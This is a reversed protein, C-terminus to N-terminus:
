IYPTSNGPGYPIKLGAINTPMINTPPNPTNVGGYLAGPSGWPSRDRCLAIM